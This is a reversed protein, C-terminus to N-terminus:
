PQQRTGPMLTHSGFILYDCIKSYAWLGQLSDTMYLRSHNTQLPGPRSSIQKTKKKRSHSLCSEEQEGQNALVRQRWQNRQNPKPMCLLNTITLTLIYPYALWVCHLASYPPDHKQWRGSADALAFLVVTQLHTETWDSFLTCRWPKQTSCCTRWLPTFSHTIPKSNRRGENAQHTSTNGLTYIFETWNLLCQHKHLVTYVVPHEACWHKQKSLSCKTLASHGRTGLSTAALM